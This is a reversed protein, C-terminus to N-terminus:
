QNTVNNACLNGVGTTSLYPGGGTCVNGVVANHHATDLIDCLSDHDPAITNGSLVCYSTEGSLTLDGNFTCGMVSVRQCSKITLASVGDEQARAYCGMVSGTCNQLIMNSMYCNNIFLSGIGSITGVGTEWGPLYGCISLNRFSVYLVTGSNPAISMNDLIYLASCGPGEGDFSVGHKITLNAELHYEGRLFFLRGGYDGMAAIAANIEVEDGQGDCLYDCDDATWGATSTGIVFTACTKGDKGDQGDTGDAGDQGPAGTAGNEGTAGVPGTLEGADLKQQFTKGDSFFVNKAMAGNDYVHLKGDKDMYANQLSVVREIQESM